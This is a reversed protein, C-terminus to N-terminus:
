LGVSILNGTNTELTKTWRFLMNCIFRHPFGTFFFFRYNCQPVIMESLVEQDALNEFEVVEIRDLLWTIFDSEANLLIKAKRKKNTHLLKCGKLPFLAWGIFTGGQCSSLGKLHLHIDCCWFSFSLLSLSHFDQSLSVQHVKKEKKEQLYGFPGMFEAKGVRYLHFQLGSIKGM